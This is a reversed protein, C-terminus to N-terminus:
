NVNPNTTVASPVFIEAYSFVKPDLTLQLSFSIKGSTPEIQSNIITVGTIYHNDQEFVRIQQTFVQMTQAEGGLIIKNDAGSMSFNNFWVQPLTNAEIVSFVNSSIKRGGLIQALDDIKKKYDLVQKEAMQYSASNYATVKKGLMLIEQEQSQTKYLLLGYTFAVLVVLILSAFFAVEKWSSKVESEITDM